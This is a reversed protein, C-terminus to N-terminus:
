REKPFKKRLLPSIRLGSDFDHLTDRIHQSCLEGRLDCMCGSRICDEDIHEIFAQLTKSIKKVLDEDILFQKKENM